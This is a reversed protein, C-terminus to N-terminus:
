EMELKKAAITRCAKEFLESLEQAHGDPVYCVAGKRNTDAPNSISEALLNDATVMCDASDRIRDLLLKEYREKVSAYFNPSSEPKDTNSRNIAHAPCIDAVWPLGPNKKKLRMGILHASSPPSVTYILDVGEYRALRAAQRSSFMEWLRDRDSMTRSAAFKFAGRLFVPYSEPERLGTRVIDIGEPIQAEERSDAESHRTLVLPEWGYNRLLRIFGAAREIVPYKLPPFAYVVMLVKKM